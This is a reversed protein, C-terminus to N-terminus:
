ATSSNNTYDRLRQKVAELPAGRAIANRAQAMVDPPAARASRAAGTAAAPTATSPAPSGYTTPGSASGTVSAPPAPPNNAPAAAPPPAPASGAAAAMQQQRATVARLNATAQHFAAIDGVKWAAIATQLAKLKASQLQNDFQHGGQLAAGAGSALAAMAPKNWNQGASWLGAGLASMVRGTNPGFVGGQPPSAALGQLWAPMGSETAAPASVAPSADPAPAAGPGPPPTSPAPATLNQVPFLPSAPLYGLVNQGFDSDAM